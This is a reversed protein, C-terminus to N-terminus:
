IPLNAKSFGNGSQHWAGQRRLWAPRRLRNQCFIRKLMTMGALLTELKHARKSILMSWKRRLSLRLLRLNAQARAGSKPHMGGDKCKCLNKLPEPCQVLYIMM